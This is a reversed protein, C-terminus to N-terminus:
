AATAAPPMWTQTASAFKFGLSKLRDRQVRFKVRDCTPDLKVPQRGIVLAHLEGFLQVDPDDSTNVEGAPAAPAPVDEDSRGRVAQDNELAPDMEAQVETPIAKEEATELFIDSVHACLDSIVRGKWVYSSQYVQTLIFQGRYEGESYQDLIADKVKFEGISTSLAGVAFDGKSGHIVKVTLKGAIKISM